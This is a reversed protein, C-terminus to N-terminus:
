STEVLTTVPDCKSVWFEGQGMPESEFHGLIPDAVICRICAM